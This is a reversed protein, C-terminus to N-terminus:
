KDKIESITIKDTVITNTVYKKYMATDEAYDEYFTKTDFKKKTFPATYKVKFRNNSEEKINDERMKVLIDEKVESQKKELASRKDLIKQYEDFIDKYKEIFENEEIYTKQIDLHLNTFLNLLEKAASTEELSDQISDFSVQEVDGLSKATNNLVWNDTNGEELIKQLNVDM